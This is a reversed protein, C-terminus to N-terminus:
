LSSICVVVKNSQDDIEQKMAVRVSTDSQNSKNSWSASAVYSAARTNLNKAANLDRDCEYGCDCRFVRESLKLKVKKVGCQNCIKSSPFFRNAIVLESGYWQCKYELQRRFEGFGGDAIANALSHNKLMGCVNLDEIVIRAYNKSLYSTIKHIADKRTDSIKKHIQAVKLQQKKYNASQAKGKVYKKSLKRQELRLKRKYKKFPKLNPFTTGDSLVALTKIGLDVGVSEKTKITHTPEFEQKLAIFWHNAHRSITANKICQQGLNESTKIWGFIPLKVKCGNTVIAGELYFSDHQGKKKFVPYKAKKTFFRKFAIDLNRLAQQPSFKSSEYYWPNTSKVEKVLLKHLDIATPHKEGHEYRDKCLALGWNYAHRSVGCHQVAMTVQKNNLELRIRVSRIKM